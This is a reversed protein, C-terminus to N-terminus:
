KFTRQLNTVQFSISKNVEASYTSENGSVDLATLAFYYTKSNALGAVTYTPAGTSTTLGAYISTGYQGTATGYYIKWGALDSESQTNWRLTATRSPM